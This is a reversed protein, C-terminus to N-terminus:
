PQRTDLPAPATALRAGRAPLGRVRRRVPPDPRTGRVLPRVGGSRGLRDRRLAAPEAPRVATGRRRLDDFVGRLHSQPRVPQIREGGSAPDTGATDPHRRGQHVARVRAGGPRAGRLDPTRGGGAGGGLVAVSPLVGLRHDAVSDPGCLDGRHGRVMGRQRDRSDIQAYTVVRETGTRDGRGGPRAHAIPNRRVVAQNREDGSHRFMRSPHSRRRPASAPPVSRIDRIGAFLRLPLVSGWGNGHIHNGVRLPDSRHGM